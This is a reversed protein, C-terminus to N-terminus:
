PKELGWAGRVVRSRIVTGWAVPNLPNLALSARLVERAQEPKGARLLARGERCRAWALRRRAVGHLWSGPAAAALARAVVEGEAGRMEAARASRQGPHRRHLTLPAPLVALKWRAHVRLWLDWDQALSLSEDFGGCEVVCERRALVSSMVLRNARVLAARTVMRVGRPTRMRDSLVETSETGLAAVEPHAGLAEAQWALKRPHWLDDDDLFAVWEEQAARLGTNRAAGPGVGPTSLVRVPFPAEWWAGSVGGGDDVILLEAPRLDQASVSAVAERLYAPRNCTPLIVSIGPIGV